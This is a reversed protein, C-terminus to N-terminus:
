INENKIKEKLRKEAEKYEKCFGKCKEEKCNFCIIEKEGPLIYSLINSNKPLFDAKNFPKM